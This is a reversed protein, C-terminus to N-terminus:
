LRLNYIAGLTLTGDGGSRAGPQLIRRSSAPHDEHVLAHTALHVYRYDGLGASQLRSKTAERGLYVRSRGTRWGGFLGARQRFLGRVETVEQRSAPLPAAGASAPAEDFGPAFG